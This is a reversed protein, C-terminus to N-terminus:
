GTLTFHVLNVVSPVTKCWGFTISIWVRESNRVWAFSVKREETEVEFSGTILSIEERISSWSNELSKFIGGSDLRKNSRALDDRDVIM